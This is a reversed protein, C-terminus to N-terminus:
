DQRYHSYNKRHAPSSKSDYIMSPYLAHAAAFFNFNGKINIPGLWGRCGRNSKKLKKSMSEENNKLFNRIIIICMNM